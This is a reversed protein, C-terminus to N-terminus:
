TSIEIYHKFEPPMGKLKIVVADEANEFDARFVQMWALDASLNVETIIVKNNCIDDIWFKFFLEVIKHKDLAANDTLRFFLSNNYMLIDKIYKGKLNCQQLL